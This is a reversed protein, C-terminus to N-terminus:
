QLASPQKDWRRRARLRQVEAQAMESLRVYDTKVVRNLPLGGPELVVYHLPRMYSALTRAHRRLEAVPLDAGPRKEVFAVIAESFLAHEV